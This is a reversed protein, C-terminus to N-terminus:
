PGYVGGVPIKFISDKYPHQIVKGGIYGGYSEPAGQSALFLTVDKASDFDAKIGELKQRTSVSDAANPLASFSVYEISRSEEQKYDEKHKSIFDAIERDSIKVSSDPISSYTERVLSIKALLSNDANQKELFWRPFNASNTMLSNYKDVLRLYEMENIYVNFQNKQEQTGRKKLDSIRQQALQPSYQGTQQDTGIQKIDQPPNAGFLIDNLERKGVQMGLQSIESSMLIRNVEQNWVSEIIQQRAAEGGQSYGQSKQYDEQQKVKSQFEALDIKKGNVSGVTNSNGSNFLSKSKGSIYDTLIFGMLAVAIAIVAVRAYKDRIKQIVSM